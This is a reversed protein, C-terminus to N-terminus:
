RQATLQATCFSMVAQTYGRYTTHEVLTWGRRAYFMEKDPTFLYVVEHGLAGAEELVRRVLLTGIGQRRHEAAVYVSALWPSLDMRTDMDHAILSASGLLTRGSLAVFTTPIPAPGRDAPAHHSRLFATRQKLSVGTDLYSWQAQHWRALAPVCEPHYALYDIQM